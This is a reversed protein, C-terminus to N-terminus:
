TMVTILSVVHDLFKRCYVINRNNIIQQRMYADRPMSPFVKIQSMISCILITVTKNVTMEKVRSTNEMACYVYYHLSHQM